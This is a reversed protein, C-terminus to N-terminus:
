SRSECRRLAHAVEAFEDLAGGIEDEGEAAREGALVAVALRAGSQQGFHEAGLEDIGEALELREPVRVVAHIGALKRIGHTDVVGDLVQAM